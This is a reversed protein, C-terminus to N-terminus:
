RVRKTLQSATGKKALQRKVVAVLQRRQEPTLRKVAKALRKREEPTLRNMAEALREQEQPTLEAAPKAPATTRKRAAPASAPGPHGMSLQAPIVAYTSQGDASKAAAAPCIGTVLAISAVVIEVLLGVGVGAWTVRTHASAITM